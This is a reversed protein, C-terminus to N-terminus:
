KNSLCHMKGESPQTKYRHACAPTMTVTKRSGKKVQEMQKFLLLLIFFFLYFYMCSFGVHGLKRDILKLVSQFSHMWLFHM